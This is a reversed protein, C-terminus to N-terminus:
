LDTIRTEGPDTHIDIVRCDACMKLREAARGQFMAHGALKLLMGEVAKLTGFPKSCRICAYPQTQAIVQWQRRAKAGDALWLRPQLSLAQEPCTKVCLGCQVCNKEVFRLQPAEPNDGLAGAPCAGVCSLCLTCKQADVQLGGLPSAKPPLAIAEQPAAPAQALLHELALELTARKDAQLAFTAPKAVGQAPRAQLRADLDSLDRADRAEILALHEGAYGLGSLIAQAVAMQERLAERYQPADDATSLVWVQSAGLAVASLWVELGISAMHWAQLPLVRAPLGKYGSSDVRAARGLEHLLKQGAEQSHILVAAERGGAKAYTGLLTRLRQGLEAPGPTAYSLAGSPCVTTCAGCGVCLHPEVVVGGGSGGVVPRAPAFASGGQAATARQAQGAKGKLSADSRIASASCVEICASCGVNENRSHACLNQRYQV